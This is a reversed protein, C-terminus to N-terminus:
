IELHIAPHKFTNPLNFRLHGKKRLTVKKLMFEPIKIDPTGIDPTPYMIQPLYRTRLPPRLPTSLIYPHIM